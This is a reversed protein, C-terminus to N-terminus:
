SKFYHKYIPKRYLFQVYLIPYFIVLSLKYKLKLEIEDTIITGCNSKTLIHKHKWEKLFFPMKTAIDIFFIENETIKTEIILADWRQKTFGFNLELQVIDNTNCGDFRLVNVPPFPPALKEFLRLDFKKWVIDLTNEVKTRIFIKM